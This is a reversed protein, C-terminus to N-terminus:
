CSRGLWRRLRPNGRGPPTVVCELSRAVFQLLSEPLENSTVPAQRLVVQVEERETRAEAEIRMTEGRALILLAREAGAHEVAAVMLARILDELVIERSVVQSVTLVTALDLHDVSNSPGGRLNM